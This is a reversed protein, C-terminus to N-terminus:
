KGSGLRFVPIEKTGLSEGNFLIELHYVGESNLEVNQFPASMVAGQYEKPILADAPSAPLSCDGTDILTDGSPSKFVLKITNERTLDFDSVGITISFSYDSPVYRPRLVITPGTLQQITGGSSTPINQSIASLMFSVLKAM